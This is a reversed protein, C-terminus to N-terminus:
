RADYGLQRLSALVDERDGPYGADILMVGTDDTVLTWNVAEGQALHVTDTVQVLAPAPAMGALRPTIALATFGPAAPRARTTCLLLFLQHSFQFKSVFRGSFLECRALEDFQSDGGFRVAHVAGGDTVVELRPPVLAPMGRERQGPHGGDALARFPSMRPVETSVGVKRYLGATMACAKAVM